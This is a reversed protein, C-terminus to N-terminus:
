CLAPEPRPRGAPLDPVRQRGVALGGCGGDHLAPERDRVHRLRRLAPLHLPRAPRDAARPPTTLLGPFHSWCQYHGQAWRTRQRLRAPDDPRRGQAVWATSCFRIRWGLRTLSLRPRPGGDPLRDVAAPRALPRLTAHVPRQRRARGLRDPRTRGARSPQLGFEIDQCRPLLGDGANTITVGIQAEPVTTRSLRATETLAHRDLQGDADMVGIVIDSPEAGFLEPHGEAFLRPDCEDVLRNVVEYAHNLVAGKGRGAVERPRDVVRVRGTSEFARALESTRDRSGDNMVLVTADYDLATLSRLTEGHRSRTMRPCVLVYLPGSGSDSSHRQSRLSSLAFLVFYYLAVTGMFYGLLTLDVTPM